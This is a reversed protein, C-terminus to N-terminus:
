HRPKLAITGHRHSSHAVNQNERLPPSYSSLATYPNMLSSCLGRNEYPARIVPLAHAAKRCIRIELLFVRHGGRGEINQYAAAAIDTERSGHRQFKCRRRQIDGHDVGGRGLHPALVLAGRSDGGAGPAQQCREADPLVDLGLRLGDIVHDDGIRAGGIRDARHKQSKVACDLVALWKGVHRRINGHDRGKAFLRLLDANRDVLRCSCRGEVDGLALGADFGSIAPCEGCSEHDSGVPDLGAQALHGADLGLAPFIALRANDCRDGVFARVIAAGLLM